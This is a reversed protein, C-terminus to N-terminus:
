RGTCANEGIRTAAAPEASEFAGFCLGCLGSAAKARHLLRARTDLPLEVRGIDDLVQGTVMEMAPTGNETFKTLPPGLRHLRRIDVLTAAVARRQRTSLVCPKVPRQGSAAETRRPAAGGGCGAVLGLALAAVISVVRTMPIKM